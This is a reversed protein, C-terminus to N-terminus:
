SLRPKEKESMVLSEVCLSRAKLPVAGRRLDTGWKKEDSWVIGFDGSRDSTAISRYRARGTDGSVQIVPGVGQGASNLRAFMIQANNPFGYFAPGPIAGVVERCTLCAGGPASVVCPPRQMKAVGTLNVAAGLPAGNQDVMTAAVSTGDVCIPLAPRCAQWVFLSRGNSLPSSRVATTVGGHSVTRRQVVACIGQAPIIGADAAPASPDAVEAGSCPNASEGATSGADSNM